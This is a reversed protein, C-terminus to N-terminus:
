RLGARNLFLEEPGYDNALYPDALRRREHRGVRGGADLAHQRHPRQLRRFRGGTNHLTTGGRERVSARRCSGRPRRTGCDHAESYGCMYWILWGRDYDFVRRQKIWRKVGTRRSVSRVGDGQNRFLQLGM